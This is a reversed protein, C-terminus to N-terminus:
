VFRGHRFLNAFKKVTRNFLGSGNRRDCFSPGYSYYSYYGFVPQDDNNFVLGVLKDPDLMEITEEVLKRPTKHASVVVLFGDIFREILRCDPFLLVPSTDLVIYDYHKRAEEILDDLRPSKLVDYPTQLVAGAPLVALHLPACVRVGDELSLNSDQIIDVVGRNPAYNLGLGVAVSPRRLDLDVLLVKCGPIRTLAGAMNIATTTKGDGITPSSIAIVSLNVDGHLQEVMHCLSRYQEAEFSRPSGISVLHSEARVVISQLERNILPQTSAGSEEASLEAANERERNLTFEKGSAAGNKEPAHKQKQLSREKEAKELAQFFKSM